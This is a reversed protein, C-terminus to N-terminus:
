CFSWVFSQLWGFSWFFLGIMPLPAAHVAESHAARAHTHTSADSSGIITISLVECWKLVPMNSLNLYIVGLVSFEFVYTPLPNIGKGCITKVQTPMLQHWSLGLPVCRFAITLFKTWFQTKNTSEIWSAHTLILNAAHFYCLIKQFRFPMLYFASSKGWSRHFLWRAYRM